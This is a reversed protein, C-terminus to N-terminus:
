VDRAEYILHLVRNWCREDLVRTRGEYSATDQVAALREVISRLKDREATLLETRRNARCLPCLGLENSGRCNICDAYGTGTWERVADAM